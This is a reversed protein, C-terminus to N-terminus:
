CLKVILAILSVGLAILSLVLNFDNWKDQRTKQSKAKEKAVQKEKAVEENKKALYDNYTYEISKKTMRAQVVEGVDKVALMEDLMAESIQDPHLIQHEYKENDRELVYGLTWLEGNDTSYLNLSLLAGKEMLDKHYKFFIPNYLDLLEVNERECKDGYYYMTRLKNNAKFIKEGVARLKEVKTM